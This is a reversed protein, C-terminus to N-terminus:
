KADEEQMKLELSKIKEEDEIKEVMVKGDEVTEKFLAFEGTLNEEKEDVRAAFLYTGDKENFQKVIGYKEGTALEMLQDERNEM